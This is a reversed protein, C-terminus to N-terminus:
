EAIGADIPREQIFSWDEFHEFFNRFFGVVEDRGRYVTGGGSSGSALVWEYDDAVTELDFFAGPEGRQLGARFEEISRRVIEINEQSM